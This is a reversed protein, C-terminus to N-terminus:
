SPILERLRPTIIGQPPRGDRPWLYLKGEQSNLVWEGPEDIAELVNEVWCSKKSTKFLTLRYTGALATQAIQTEENVSALPLINVLWQHHPRIVIEVDELNPWNKLTGKPFHLINKASYAREKESKPPDLPMFGAARARPLLGETDYLTYFRWPTGNLRPVDAVWVKGRAKRPLGAPVTTMKK